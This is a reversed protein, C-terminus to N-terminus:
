FRLQFEHSSCWSEIPICYICRAPTESRFAPLTRTASSQYSQFDTSLSFISCHMTFQTYWNCTWSDFFWCTGLMLEPMSARKSLCPSVVSREAISQLSPHPIAYGWLDESLNRYSKLGTLLDIKQFHSKNKLLFIQIRWFPYCSVSFARMEWSAM